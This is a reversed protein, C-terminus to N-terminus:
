KCVTSIWTSCIVCYAKYPKDSIASLHLDQVKTEFAICINLNTFDPSM